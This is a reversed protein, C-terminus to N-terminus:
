QAVGPIMDTNDFINGIVEYTTFPDAVLSNYYEKEEGQILIKMACDRWTVIGKLSTDEDDESWYIVVIDGEYIEEGNRDTLGTFQGITDPDVTKWPEQPDILDNYIAADKQPGITKVTGDSLIHTREIHPIVLQGYVWEGSYIRKARFKIERM